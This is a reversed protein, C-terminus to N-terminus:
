YVRRIEYFNPLVESSLFLSREEVHMIYLVTDVIKKVPENENGKFTSM